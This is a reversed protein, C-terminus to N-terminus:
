NPPALTRPRRLIVAQANCSWICYSFRGYVRNFVGKTKRGERAAVLKTYVAILAETDDSCGGFTDFIAPKFVFGTVEPPGGPPLPAAPHSGPLPVTPYAAKWAVVVKNRYDKLKKGSASALTVDPYAAALRAVKRATTRATRFPGTVMFDIATPRGADAGTGSLALFILTDAPRSATGFLLPSPIAPM